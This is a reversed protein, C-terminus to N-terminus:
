RSRVVFAQGTTAGIVSLRGKPRYGAPTEYSQGPELAFSTDTMTATVGDDRFWLRGVSQNQIDYGQRNPDNPLADQATGGTTITPM